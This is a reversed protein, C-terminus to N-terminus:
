RNRRAHTFSAACAACALLVLTVLVGTAPALADLPDGADVQRMLEVVPTPPNVTAVAGMWGSLQDRGVFFGTFFSLGFVVLAVLGTAQASRTRVAVAVSLLAVAVVVPVLPALAATTAGWSSGRYGLAFAAATTLPVQVLVVAGLVALVAGTVFPTATGHALRLRDLYGSTLDNLVLTGAAGAAGAATAVTTLLILPLLFAIFSRGDLYQEGVVSLQGAYILMFFLAQALPSVSLAPSRLLTRVCRATAAATVTATAAPSRTDPHTAPGAELRANM